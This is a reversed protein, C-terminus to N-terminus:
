NTPVFRGAAPHPLVAICLVRAKGIRWNGERPASGVLGLDPRSPVLRRLRAKCLREVQANVTLDGPYRGRVRLQTTQFVEAGHQVTCDVAQPVGDAGLTLDQLCIGAALPAPQTVPVDPEGAAPQVLGSEAAPQRSGQGAADPQGSESTSTIAGVAVLVGAV